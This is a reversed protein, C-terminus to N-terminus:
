GGASRRKEDIVSNAQWFADDLAQRVADVGVGLEALGRACSTLGEELAARKEAISARRRYSVVIVRDLM